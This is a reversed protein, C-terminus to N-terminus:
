CLAARKSPLFGNAKNEKEFSDATVDCASGGATQWTRIPEELGTYPKKKKHIPFM